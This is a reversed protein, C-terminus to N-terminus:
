VLIYYVFLIDLFYYLVIRVVTMSLNALIGSFVVLM